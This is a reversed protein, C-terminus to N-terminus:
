HGLEFWIADVVYVMIYIFLSLAVVGVGKAVAILARRRPRTRMLHFPVGLPPFLACVFAHYGPADLQNEKIDEKCWAFCILPMVGVYIFYSSIHSSSVSGFFLDVTAAVAWAIAYMLVLIRTRRM